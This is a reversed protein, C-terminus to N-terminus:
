RYSRRKAQPRTGHQAAAAAEVEGPRSQAAREGGECESFAQALENSTFGNLERRKRTLASQEMRRGVVEIMARAASVRDDVDVGIRVSSGLPGAPGTLATSMGIRIAPATSQRSSGRPRPIAFGLGSFALRLHLMAASLNAPPSDFM